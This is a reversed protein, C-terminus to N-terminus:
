RIFIRRAKEIRETLEILKKARKDDFHGSINKIAEITQEMFFNTGYEELMERIKEELTLM